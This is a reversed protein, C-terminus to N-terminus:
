PEVTGATAICMLGFLWTLFFIVGLFFFLFPVVIIRKTQSFFEAATEIIAFSIRLSKCNCLLCLCFLCGFFWFMVALFNLWPANSSGTNKEIDQGWEFVGIGLVVLSVQIIFVSAWSICVACKDMFGIYIFTYVITFGIGM